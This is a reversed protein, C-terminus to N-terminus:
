FRIISASTLRCRLDTAEVDEPRMLLEMGEEESLAQANHIGRDM